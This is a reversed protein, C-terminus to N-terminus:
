QHWECDWEHVQPPQGDLRFAGCGPCENPQMTKKKEALGDSIAALTAEARNLLDDSGELHADSGM